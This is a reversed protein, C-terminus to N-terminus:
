EKEWLNNMGALLRKLYSSGLVKNHVGFITVANSIEKSSPIANDPFFKYSKLIYSYYVFDSSDPESIVFFNKEFNDRRAWFMSRKYYEGKSKTGTLIYYALGGTDEYYNIGIQKTWLLKGTKINILTRMVPGEVTVFGDRLPVVGTFILYDGLLIAEYMFYIRVAEKINIEYLVNETKIDYLVVSNRTIFLMQDKNKIYLSSSIENKIDMEKEVILKGTKPDLIYFKHTDAFYIYENDDNYLLNSICEKKGANFQWKIEGTKDNLLALGSYGLEESLNKTDGMGLGVIIGYREKRVVKPDELKVSWVENGTKKNLRYVTKNDFTIIDDGLSILNILHATQLPKSWVVENKNTDICVIGNSKLFEEDQYTLYVLGDIETLTFGIDSIGGKKFEVESLLKGTKINVKRLYYPDCAVIYMEEEKDSDFTQFFDGEIANKIKGKLSGDLLNYMSFDKGNELVAITDFKEYVIYYSNNFFENKPAKYEYKVSFIERGTDLNHFTLINYKGKLFKNLILIKKETLLDFMISENKHNISYLFKMTDLKYFDFREEYVKVFYDNDYIYTSYLTLKDEPTQIEYERKIKGTETDIILMDTKRKNMKVIEHRYIYYERGEDPQDLEPYLFSEGTAKYEWIVDPEPTKNLSYIFSLQFFLCFIFVSFIIIKKIM